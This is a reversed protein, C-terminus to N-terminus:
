LNELIVSGFQSPTKKISVSPNNAIILLFSAARLFSKSELNTNNQRATESKTMM